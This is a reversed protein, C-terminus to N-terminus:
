DEKFRFPEPPSGPPGPSGPREPPRFPTPRPSPQLPKRNLLKELSSLRNELDDLRKEIKKIRELLNPNEITM